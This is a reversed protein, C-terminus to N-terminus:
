DDDARELVYEPFHEVRRPEVALRHAVDEHDAIVLRRLLPEDRQTGTGREAVDVGALETVGPGDLAHGQEDPLQANAVPKERPHGVLQEATGPGGPLGVPQGRDDVLPAVSSHSSMLRETSVTGSGTRGRARSPRRGRRTVRRAAARVTSVIRRACRPAGPR